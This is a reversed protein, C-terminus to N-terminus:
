KLLVARETVRRGGSVVTIFYTGSPLAKGTIDHANWEIRRSGSAIVHGGLRRVLRGNVDHILISQAGPDQSDVHLTTTSNFPNPLLQLQLKGRRPGAADTPNGIRITAGEVSEAAVPAGADAFTIADFALSTQDTSSRVEFRLVYLEEPGSLSMGPCLLSHSVDLQGESPVFVHFTSGCASVMDIGEQQSAPRDVFALIEPDYSIVAHYANFDPGPQTVVIRVDFETGPAVVNETPLLAVHVGSAGVSVASGAVVTFAVVRLLPACLRMM